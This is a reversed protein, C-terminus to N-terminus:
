DNSTQPEAYGCNAEPDHECENLFVESLLCLPQSDRLCFSAMLHELDLSDVFSFSHFVSPIFFLLFSLFISLIIRRSRIISGIRKKKFTERFPKEGAEEQEGAVEM